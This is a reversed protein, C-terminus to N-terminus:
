SRPSSRDRRARPVGTSPWRQVAVTFADQAADEAVDIDGFVGVLVAVVRGYEEDFTREIESASLAPM